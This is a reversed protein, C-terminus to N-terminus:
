VVNFSLSLGNSVKLVHFSQQTIVANMSAYPSPVCQGVTQFLITGSGLLSAPPKPWLVGKYVNLAFDLPWSSQGLTWDEMVKLIAPLLWLILPVCATPPLLFFLLIEHGLHLCWKPLMPHSLPLWLLWLHHALNTAWLILFGNLPLHHHAGFIPLKNPENQRNSEILGGNKM